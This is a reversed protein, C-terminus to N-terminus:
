FLGAVCTSSGTSSKRVATRNRGAGGTCQGGDRTTACPPNKKGVPGDLVPAQHLTAVTVIVVTAVELPFLGAGPAEDRRALAIQSLGARDELDSRARGSPLAMAAIGAANPLAPGPRDASSQYETMQATVCMPNASRETLTWANLATDLSGHSADCAFNQLQACRVCGTVRREVRNAHRDPEFIFCASRCPCDIMAAAVARVLPM